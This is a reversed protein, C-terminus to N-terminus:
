NRLSPKAQGDEGAMDVALNPDYYPWARHIAIALEKRDVPVRRVGFERLLNIVVTHIQKDELDARFLALHRSTPLALIVIEPIEYGYFMKFRTRESDIMTKIRYLTPDSLEKGVFKAMLNVLRKNFDEMRPDDDPLEPM